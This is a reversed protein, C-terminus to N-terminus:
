FVTFILVHFANKIQKATLAKKVRNTKNYRFLLSTYFQALVTSVMICRLNISIEWAFEEQQETGFLLFGLSTSLLIPISM